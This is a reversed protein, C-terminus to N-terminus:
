TYPAIATTGGGIKLMFVANTTLQGNEGTSASLAGVWDNNLAAIQDGQQSAQFGIATVYPKTAAAGVTVPIADLGPLLGIAFKGNRAVRAELYDSVHG